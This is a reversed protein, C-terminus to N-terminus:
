PAAPPESSGRANRVAADRLQAALTDDADRVALSGFLGAARDAEGTSYYLYALVLESERNMPNEAVFRALRETQTTLVNADSYMTRLDMPYDVLDRTTLLARRMSADATEYDGLAFNVWAHLMKVYGDREDALMARVYLARAEDYRGAAFAANGDMVVARLEASPELTQYGDAGEPLQEPPATPQAPATQTPPGVYPAAPAPYAATTDYGIAGYTPAVYGPSAYTPVVYGPSAYASAFYPQSLYASSYTYGFGLGYGYSPYFGYSPYCSRPYYYPRHGYYYHSPVYRQNYNYPYGYRRDYNHDGYSLNSRNAGMHIQNGMDDLGSTPPRDNFSGGLPGRGAQSDISHPYGSSQGKVRPM